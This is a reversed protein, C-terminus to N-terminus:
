LLVYNMNLKYKNLKHHVILMLITLTVGRIRRTELFVETGPGGQHRKNPKARVSLTPMWVNVTSHKRYVMGKTWTVQSGLVQRLAVTRLSTASAMMLTCHMNPKHRLKHHNLSLLRLLYFDDNGNAKLVWELAIMMSTFLCHDWDLTGINTWIIQHHSKWFRDISERKRFTMWLARIQFSWLLFPRFGKELFFSIQHKSHWVWSCNKHAVNDYYQMPQRQNM